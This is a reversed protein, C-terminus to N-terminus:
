PRSFARRFCRCPHNLTLSHCSPDHACGQSGGRGREWRWMVLSIEVFSGKAGKSAGDGYVDDLLSRAQSGAISGWAATVAELVARQKGRACSVLVGAFPSRAPGEYRAPLGYRLVGEVFLRVAKLHLWLSVAEGYKRQAQERLHALAGAADAELDAIARAGSGAAAPDFTFDRLTYRREKLAARLADEYKRLATVLYLVYGERDEAIRRASGPVVPSGHVADRRGEPGYPVAEAALGEYSALFAEESAKPVVLVYTHLYESLGSVIEARAAQLAQPTIVDELGRVLLNGDRRRELATLQTRKEGYASAYSRLESDVREAAALIRKVLDPLPDRPDWAEFDWTWRRLYETVPVSNVTLPLPPPAAAGADTGASSRGRASEAAKSALYTDAIQRETKRVVGECYSDARGLDDSMALLGEFTGVKMAPVPFENVDALGLVCRM